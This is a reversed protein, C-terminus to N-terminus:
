KTHLQIAIWIIRKLFMMPPYAQSDFDIKSWFDFLAECDVVEMEELEVGLQLQYAM